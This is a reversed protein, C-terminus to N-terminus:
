APPCPTVGLGGLLWLDASRPLSPLAGSGTGADPDALRAARGQGSSCGEPRFAQELAVEQLMGEPCWDWGVWVANCLFPTLALDWSPQAPVQETLVDM